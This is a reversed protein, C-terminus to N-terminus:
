TRDSRDLLKAGIAGGFAPLVTFMAFAFLVILVLTVPNHLESLAQSVQAETMGLQKWQTRLMDTAAPESFRWATLLASIAFGFVGCIWGLHAGSRISLRQGTRWRYLFVALWGAGALSVIALPPAVTAIPSSFVISIVGALM